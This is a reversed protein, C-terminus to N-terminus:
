PCQVTNGPEWRGLPIEVFVVVPHLDHDPPLGEVPSPHDAVEVDDLGREAFGDGLEFALVELQDARRFRFRDRHLDEGAPKM